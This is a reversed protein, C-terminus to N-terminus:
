LQETAAGKKALANERTATGYALGLFIPVCDNAERLKQVQPDEPTLHVAINICGAGILVLGIFCNVRGRGASICSWTMSIGGIGGARIHRLGIGRNVFLGPEKRLGAKVESNEIDGSHLPATPAM